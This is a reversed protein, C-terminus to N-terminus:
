RPINLGTSGTSGDPTSGISKTRPIRLAGAGKASQQLEKRKSKRRKIIAQDQSPNTSQVTVPPPAQQPTVPPPPAAPAAPQAQIPNVPLPPAPPAVPAQQPTPLPEPQPLPEPPDIKPM